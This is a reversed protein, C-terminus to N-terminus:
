TAKGTKPSLEICRLEAVLMATAKDPCNYVVFGGAPITVRHAAEATEFPGEVQLPGTPFEALLIAWANEINTPWHPRAATIQRELEDDMM